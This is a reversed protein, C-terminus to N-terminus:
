FQSEWALSNRPLTTLGLIQCVMTVIVMTVIVLAIFSESVTLLIRFSVDANGNAEGGM